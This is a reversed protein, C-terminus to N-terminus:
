SVLSIARELPGATNYIINVEVLILVAGAFTILKRPICKSSYHTGKKSSPAVFYIITGLSVLFVGLVEQATFAHGFYLCEVLFVLVTESATAVGKTISNEYRLLTSSMIGAIALTLVTMTSSVSKFSLIGLRFMLNWNENSGRRCYIRAFDVFFISANIAISNLNLSINQVFQSQNRNKLLRENFIGALVSCSMQLMIVLIKLVYSSVFYQEHKGRMSDGFDAGMGNFSTEKSFIGIAIVAISM